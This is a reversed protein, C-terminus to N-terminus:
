HLVSQYWRTADKCMNPLLEKLKNVANHQQTYWPKGDDAPIKALPRMYFYKSSLPLKSLYLDLLKVLCRSSGPESYICGEKSRVKADKFRHQNYKSHVGQIQLLSHQFVSACWSPSMGTAWSTSWTAGTSWLTCLTSGLLLFCQETIDSPIVDGNCGEGLARRM